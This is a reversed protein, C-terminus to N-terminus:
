AQGGAERRLREIEAQLRRMEAEARDARQREGEARRRESEAREARTPFPQASGPAYFRLHRGQVGLELGLSQSTLRGAPGPAIPQYQGNELRFGRLREAVWEARPDFLFYDPVCLDDRYRVMKDGLDERRTSRSTVELVFCPVKGGEEWVKYIDRQRNAVGKVVYTDPSVCEAPVGETYYLFNNGSVYVNPDPAFFDKLVDIAYDKMEDRHDDSEGMPRGDRTPYEVAHAPTVGRGDM